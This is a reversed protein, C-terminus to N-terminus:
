VHAVEVSVPKAPRPQLYRELWGGLLPYKFGAGFLCAVGGALGLLWLLGTLGILALIVLLPALSALTLLVDSELAAAAAFGFIQLFTMVIFTLIALLWYAAMFLIQYAMAQLAQFAVYRSKDRQTFYVLVPALIGWGFVLISGHAIGALLREDITLNPKASEPLTM